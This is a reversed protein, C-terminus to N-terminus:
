PTCSGAIYADNTVGFDKCFNGTVDISADPYPFSTDYLDVRSLIRRFVDNARGTSDIEPQVDKFRIVNSGSADPAGGTSLAIEYHTANYFPTLRLFATRDGGGIPTPLRLSMACAYGGSSVNARCQVGVPSSNPSDPDPDDAANNKRIDQGVFPTTNPIYGIAANSSSTGSYPYLFLTNSNSQSSGNVIDFDGLTFNTGFQILQARMVSPRGAPWSSQQLLPRPSSLPNLSVAGTVNSVDDRDYWYVTVTDYGSVGVLPIMQGQNPSANGVYRETELKMTLCTYAQNLDVDNSSSSQQVKIEGPTSPSGGTVASNPVVGGVLVGANCVDTSLQSSLAACDTPSNSCVQQYRLLARKADEVGAMASDYASQSLDNDSSQQQDSMMLRLFSVTIVTIILMAFIVVFLSVAGAQKNRSMTKM